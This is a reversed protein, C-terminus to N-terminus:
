QPEIPTGKRASRKARRATRELGKNGSGIKADALEASSVKSGTFDCGSLVARGFDAGRLEAKILSAGGLRANRFSTSRCSADNLITRELQAGRLEAFDLRAGTMDAFDLRASDLVAWGLRTGKLSANTLNARVMCTYHIPLRDLISSTLNAGYLDLMDLSQNPISLYSLCTQILASAPGTRQGQIRKLWSGFSTKQELTVVSVTGLYEACANMVVFFSEEANRSKYLTDLSTTSSMYTTPLGHDIVYSVMPVLEEHWWSIQSRSRLRIEDKMFAYIYESLATPAAIKVWHDLGDRRDWGEDPNEKRNKIEKTIKDVARVIRKSALYEGFSKHTFVFTPDGSKRQGYQRFFFAALLNTVGAKAGEQFADLLSGLGSDRCHEEIERVTTSRGDGHWAALGIEELVRWFSTLEMHRIKLHTRQKEYGREYVATVLDSYVENLNVKKTLDLKGRSLSLAVLYNLLPQSTVDELEKTQLEKPLGKYDLGKLKGYAQWWRHRLDTDLLSQPDLYKSDDNARARTSTTEDKPVFYPLLNLVQGQRRFESSNEQVILERGSILIRLRSPNGVNRKEVTREVERIFARATEAAAKGQSALEDLGDFIILLDQDESPELPNYGILGEDRVFRGVEEVLNRTPDVLHLPIFLTRCIGLRATDAAFIRAFSSKGAGPGGSVIRISSNTGKHRIWNELETKLSVVVKVQEGDRDQALDVESECADQQLYYANPPIFIDRLSFSEGFVSESARRELFANYRAWSWVREGANSFPTDLADLLTKYAKPNEMWENNLALTFYAPLKNSISDAAPQSLGNKELWEKLLEKIDGLISLTSPAEIFRRSIEYEKEKLPIEISSFLHDTDSGETTVIQEACEELLELLASVLSRRILGFAIENPSSGIGIASAAEAADDALDDLKGTATHIAGQIVSKLIGGVDFTLPKNFVSDPAAVKIAPKKKM